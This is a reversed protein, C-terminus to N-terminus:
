LAGRWRLDVNNDDAWFSNICVDDTGSHANAASAPENSGMNNKLVAMMWDYTSISLYVKDKVYLQSALAIWQEPTLINVKNKIMEVFSYTNAVEQGDQNIPKQDELINQSNDTFTLTIKGAQIKSASKKQDIIRVIETQWNTELNQIDFDAIEVPIYGKLVEALSLNTWRETSGTEEWITLGESKLPEMLKYYAFEAETMEKEEESLNEPIVTILPFNVAGNELGAKIRKMRSKELRIKSRDIKFDAGYSKQYFQEQSDILAEFSGGDLRSELSVTKGDVVVTETKLWQAIKNYRLESMELEDEFSATTAQIETTLRNLELAVVEREVPTNKKMDKFCNFAHDFQEQLVQLKTFKLKLQPCNM